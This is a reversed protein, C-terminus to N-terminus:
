KFLERTPGLRDIKAVIKGIRGFPIEFATPVKVSAAHEVIGPWVALLKLAQFHPTGSHRKCFFITMGSERLAARESPNRRQSIDATIWVPKPDEAALTNIIEVDESDATFKNEDDQHVVNHMREFNGIMRALHISLCRDFFFKM